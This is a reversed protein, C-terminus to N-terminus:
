QLVFKEQFTNTNSFNYATILISLFVSFFANLFHRMSTPIMGFLSKQGLNAQLNFTIRWIANNNFACFHLWKNAFVHIFNLKRKCFGFILLISRYKFQFGTNMQFWTSLKFAGKTRAYKLSPSNELFKYAILSMDQSVPKYISFPIEACVKSWTTFTSFCSEFLCKIHKVVAKIAFTLHLLPHSKLEQKAPNWM